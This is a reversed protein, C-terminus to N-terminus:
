REVMVIHRKGAAGATIADVYDWTYRIGPLYKQLFTDSIKDLAPTVRAGPTLMVVRIAIDGTKRQVIQFERAEETLSVFLISFILGNVPNGRGDHLTDSVRGDVPGVRPLTRGCACTDLPRMTARDGSLYRILPQALNHLDTHAVEGVEGPRAPRVTGDPQRVLLETIMTEMSLHLGDHRECEHGILMVERCGYSEVVGPGFAKVMEDRDSPWLREAGCIVPFDGWTRAGTRNIHRALIAAGQAYALMVEPQIRRIAAVARELDAEGRPTCDFYHDRRLAHDLEVKWKKWGTAPTALVGWYHFAKMGPRYGAWGYGRWRTADRWVRSESNYRVVMPTGTSGSTTKVVTAFPPATAIRAEDHARADAKELLPLKALDRVDRLDDPRLGAADWRERYYPTHRYAHRVLRRLLGSQLDALEAASAYQTEALMRGLSHTERGRLREWAPFLATSLVRGYLDM